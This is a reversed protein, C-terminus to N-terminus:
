KISVQWKTYSSLACIKATFGLEKVLFFTVKPSSNLRGLFYSYLSLVTRLCTNHSRCQASRRPRHKGNGDEYYVRLGPVCPESVFIIM